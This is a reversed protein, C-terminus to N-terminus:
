GRVRAKRYNLLCFHSLVPQLSRAIRPSNSSSCGTLHQGMLLFATGESPEVAIYVFLSLKFSSLSCIPRSSISLDIASRLPWRQLGKKSQVEAVFSKPTDPRFPRYRKKGGEM